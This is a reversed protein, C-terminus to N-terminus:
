GELMTDTMLATYLVQAEITETQTPSEKRKLYDQYKEEDLVIEGNILKSSLIKDYDISDLEIITSQMNTETEYASMINNDKDTLIEYKM